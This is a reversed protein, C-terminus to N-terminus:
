LSPQQSPSDAPPETLTWSTLGPVPAAEDASTVVTVVASGRSKGIAPAGSGEFALNYVDDFHDVFHATLGARLHPKIEMYDAQNSLPLVIIGVNERRAAIAKEKIGGVRLVKGTLTLEGTMALNPTVPKNLALSLLSSTMTVGASPGDKPVAGEPMNMHMSAEDLFTNGPNLEKLFMRAYTLAIESSEGMVKGLKGTVKLRAGSGPARPKEEKKEDEHQKDEESFDGNMSGGNLVSRQGNRLHGRAEVFLTKGGLATWALGMVVGPPMGDHFLHDSSHVPQGVFKKLNELTVTTKSRNEEDERVLSLAVKRAIKELLKRLERVGAERAYDRILENLAAPTLDINEEKIGHTEMTQPILYQNAIAVKEEFVYGSLRIVEVRDLLPGPITETVNATCVFLVKSLDVPADLYLDRFGSNQSPDLVELLASSPDGRFDRGLKDIEDILIVPNCVQTIKLAQIIKGPMAGVYTRRHGRIEAVDHLGGVSFRFFKRDLARAISKGISTKGVGPPGVLCMIKGQVSGKLMSVAMHELIREKVDELSYHDENLVNEARVIDHNDETEKGWPLSTMWELYTRSVSFEPSQPELSSLRRLEQDMAKTAEEPVGDLKEIAEKFQAIVTQKDDKELNLERKIHRLHQMLMYKRNEKQFKDEIQTRFQTQLKAQELDKIMIMLVKRLREVPDDEILVAQLEDRSASSMGAVLDALKLADDLNYYKVVQEYQDKYLYNTKLLDKMKAIIEHHLARIDQNDPSMVVPALKEVSVKCLPHGTGPEAVPKVLRIREEPMLMVQGGPSSPHASLSVVRLLTGVEVLEESGQIFGTDKRLARKDAKSSSSSSPQSTTALPEAVDEKELGKPLEKTMFGALNDGQGSNKLERLFNFIEHDGIQISHFIGPFTPKRFLPLAWLTETGGTEDSTAGAAAGGEAGEASTASTSEVSAETAATSSTEAKASAQDALESTVAVDEETKGPKGGKGSSSSSSSGASSSCWRGQWLDPSGSWRFSRDFAVPTLAPRRVPNPAARALQCGSTTQLLCKATRVSPLRPPLTAAGRNM